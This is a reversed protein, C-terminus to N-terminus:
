FCISHVFSILFVLSYPRWRICLLFLTELAAVGVDAGSAVAICFLSFCYVFESLAFCAIAFILRWLLRGNEAGVGFALRPNKCKFEKGHM